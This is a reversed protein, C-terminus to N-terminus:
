FLFNKNLHPTAPARCFRCVQYDEYDYVQGRQNSWGASVRRRTTATGFPHKFTACISNMEKDLNNRSSNNNSAFDTMKASISEMCLQKNSKVASMNLYIAVTKYSYKAPNSDTDGYNHVFKYPDSITTPPNKM